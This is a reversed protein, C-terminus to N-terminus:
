DEDSDPPSCARAKGSKTDLLEWSGDDRRQKQFRGTSKPLTAKVTQRAERQILGDHDVLAYVHSGIDLKVEYPAGPFEPPWGKERYWLGVVVGEEWTTQNGPAEVRCLVRDGELFRLSVGSMVAGAAQGTKTTKLCCAGSGEALDPCLEFISPVLALLVAPNPPSVGHQLSVNEYDSAWNFPTMKFGDRQCVSQPDKEIVMRCIKTMELFSSYPNLIMLLLVSASNRKSCVDAGAAIFQAVVTSQLPKKADYACNEVYKLLMQSTWAKAVEEKGLRKELDGLVQAQVAEPLNQRLWGCISAVEDKGVPQDPSHILARAAAVHAQLAEEEVDDMGLIAELATDDDSDKVKPDAGHMLLSTIVLFLQQPDTSENLCAYHLAPMGDDTESLDVGSKLLNTVVSLELPTDQIYAGQLYELLSEGTNMAAPHFNQLM